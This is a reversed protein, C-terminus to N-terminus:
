HQQFMDYHTSEDHAIFSNSYLLNTISITGGLFFIRGLRQGKGKKAWRALAIHAKTM